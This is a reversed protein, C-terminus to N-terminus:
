TFVLKVFFNKSKSKARKLWQSDQVVVYPTAKRVQLAGNVGFVKSPKERMGISHM